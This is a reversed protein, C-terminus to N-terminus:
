TLAGQSRLSPCLVPLSPLASGHLPYEARWPGPSPPHSLCTTTVPGPPPSRAPLGSVRTGFTGLPPYKGRATQPRLAPHRSPPRLPTAPASSPPSGPGGPGASLRARRTGRLEMEGRGGSEGAGRSREVGQGVGGRPRSERIERGVRVAEPYRHPLRAQVRVGGVGGPREKRERRENRSKGGKEGRMDEPSDRIGNVRRQWIQSGGSQGSDRNKKEPGPCWGWKVWLKKM